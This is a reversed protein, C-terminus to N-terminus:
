LEVRRGLREVLPRPAGIDGVVVEGVYKWSAEELFGQKLGVFTVTTDARVVINEPAGRAGTPSGERLLALGTDCDLGSPIDVSIVVAGREGQANIWAVVESALGEIPRDLGTGFLADVVIDPEGHEQAMRELALHAGQGELDVMPIGMREAVLMHIEADGKVSGASACRVIVVRMGRHGGNVLRRACAFGDGGNNGGGCVIVVVADDTDAAAIVESEVAGAANEMLVVGPLGFEQVAARDVERISERSFVFAENAELM